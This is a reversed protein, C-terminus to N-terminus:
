ASAAGDRGPRLASAVYDLLLLRGGPGLVRAMQRVAAQDDPISRLTLTATVTDFSADPFPLQQADAVRLDVTRHLAEAAAARTLMVPSLEVGTLHM